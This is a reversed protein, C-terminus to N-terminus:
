HAGGDNSDSFEARETRCLSATTLERQVDEVKVGAVACADDLSRKGGCCYDIGMKEFVRTAAPIELALERVTKNTSLHM